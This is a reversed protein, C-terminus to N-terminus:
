YEIVRSQAERLHRMQTPPVYEVYFLHPATTRRVSRSPVRPRHSGRPSSAPCALSGRVAAVPSQLSLQTSKTNQNNINCVLLCTLRVELITRRGAGSRATGFRPRQFDDDSGARYVQPSFASSSSSTSTSDSSFRYSLTPADSHLCLSVSRHNDWCIRVDKDGARVAPSQARRCPLPLM